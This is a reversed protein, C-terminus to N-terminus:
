LITKELADPGIILNFHNNCSSCQVKIHGVKEMIEKDNKRPAALYKFNCTPCQIEIQPGAVLKGPKGMIFIILLVIGGVVFAGIMNIFLFFLLFSIGFIWSFYQMFINPHIINNENVYVIKKEQYESYIKQREEDSITKLKEKQLQQIREKEELYIQHKEEDTLEM